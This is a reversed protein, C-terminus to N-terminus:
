CVSPYRLLTASVNINCSMQSTAYVTAGTSCTMTENQGDAQGSVSNANGGAASAFAASCANASQCVNCGEGGWGTECQCSTINGFDGSGSLSVSSRASGQFITGGCAPVSCNQGGYGPPCACATGNPTGFNACSQAGAVGLLALGAAMTCLLQM